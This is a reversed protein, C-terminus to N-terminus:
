YILKVAWLTSIRGGMFKVDNTLYFKMYELSGVQYLRSLLCLSRQVAFDISPNIM